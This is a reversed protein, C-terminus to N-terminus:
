GPRLRTEWQDQINCVVWWGAHLYLMEKLLTFYGEMEKDSSIRSVSSLGNTRSSSVCFWFGSAGSDGSIVVVRELDLMV